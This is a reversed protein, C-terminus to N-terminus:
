DDKLYRIVKECYTQVYYKWVEDVNFLRTMDEYKVFTPESPSQKFKRFISQKLCSIDEDINLPMRSEHKLFEIVAFAVPHTESSGSLTQIVKECEIDNRLRKLKTEYQREFLQYYKQVDVKLLAKSVKFENEIRVYFDYVDSKYLFVDQVPYEGNKDNILIAAVNHPIPLNKETLDKNVTPANIYDLLNLNRLSEFTIDPINDINSLTRLEILDNMGDNHIALCYHTLPPLTFYVIPTVNFSPTVLHVQEALAFLKIDKFNNFRQMSFEM